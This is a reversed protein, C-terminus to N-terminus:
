SRESVLHSHSLPCVLLLPSPLSLSLLLPIPLQKGTLGRLLHYPLMFLQWREKSSVLQLHLRVIFMGAPVSHDVGLM